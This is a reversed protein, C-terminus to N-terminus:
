AQCFSCLSFLREPAQRHGPKLSPRSQLTWLKATTVLRNEERHELVTSRKQIGYHIEPVPLGHAAYYKCLQLPLASALVKLPRKALFALCQNAACVLHSMKADLLIHLFFCYISSAPPRPSPVHVHMQILLSAASWTRHLVTLAIVRRLYRPLQM